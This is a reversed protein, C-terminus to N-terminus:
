AVGNGRGAVKEAAHVVQRAPADIATPGGPIPVFWIHMMPPTVRNRSGAPCAPHAPSVVGVVGLGRRLCLNTHVHWQTLCGGPQPTPGGPRTIYMAAVLVAGRPTNAYVLSQPEALDLVSGGMITALYSSVNLYHVVPLGVPTIPRYGAAKAVALSQYKSADKWSANVLRVAAHRQSRTPTADCPASSAMKMGPAMQMGPAPMTIKGAPSKTALGIVPARPATMRMGAASTGAPSSARVSMVMEPGGAVLAVSLLVATVGGTAATAGVLGAHRVRRDARAALLWVCVAAIVAELVTCLGDGFGFPETAHPTPGVVDGMTRTVVYVAIIAANLLTGGALLPSSPRVVAGAAWLLQLWGAVLMFLGFLWYEQFHSGAVAFHIVATAVSLIALCSLIVRRRSVSRQGGGPLPRTEGGDSM